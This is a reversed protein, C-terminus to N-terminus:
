LDAEWWNGEADQFYPKNNIMKTGRITGKAPQKPTEKKSGKSYVKWRGGHNAALYGETNAIERRVTSLAADIQTQPIVQGTIPDYGKQIGAEQRRLTQLKTIWQNFDKRDEREGKGSDGSHVNVVPATSTVDKSLNNMLNRQGTYSTRGVRGSEQGLSQKEYFGRAADVAKNVEDSDGVNYAAAAQRIDSEVDPFPAYGGRKSFRKLDVPSESPSTLGAIAGQFGAIDAKDQAKQAVARNEKLASMNTNLVKDQKEAMPNMVLDAYTNPGATGAAIERQAAGLRQLDEIDRAAANTVPNQSYGKSFFSLDGNFGQNALEQRSEPDNFFRPDTTGTEDAYNQLTNIQPISQQANVGKAIGAAYNIANAAADPNRFKSLMKENPTLNPDAAFQKLLEMTAAKDNQDAQDDRIGKYLGYVSGIPDVVLKDVAYPAALVAAWAPIGM